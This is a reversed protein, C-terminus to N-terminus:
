APTLSTARLQDVVRQYMEPDYNERGNIILYTYLTVQEDESLTDGSGARLFLADYQGKARRAWRVYECSAEPTIDIMTM